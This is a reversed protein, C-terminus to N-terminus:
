RIWSLISDKWGFNAMRPVGGCLVEHWFWGLGYLPWGLGWDCHILIPFGQGNHGAGNLCCFKHCGWRVHPLAAYVASGARLLSPYCNMCQEAYGRCSGNEAWGQMWPAWLFVLCVRDSWFVECNHQPWLHNLQASCGNRSSAQPFSLSQIPCRVGDDNPASFFISGFFSFATAPHLELFLLNCRYLLWLSQLCDSIPPRFCGGPLHNKEQSTGRDTYNSTSSPVHFVVAPLDVWWGKRM